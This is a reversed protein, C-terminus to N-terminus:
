AAVRQAVQDCRGMAVAGGILMSESVSVAREWAADTDEERAQAVRAELIARAGGILRDAERIRHMGDVPHPRRQGHVDPTSRALKGPRIQPKWAGTWHDVRISYLSAAPFRVRLVAQMWGAARGMGYWTLPSKRHGSRSVAEAPPPAEVYFDVTCADVGRDRLTVEVQDCATLLRDMWSEFAGYVSWAGWCEPRASGGVHGVLALSASKGPDGALVVRM